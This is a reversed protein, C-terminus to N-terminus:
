LEYLYYNISIYNVDVCMKYSEILVIEQNFFFFISKNSVNYLLRNDASLDFGFM